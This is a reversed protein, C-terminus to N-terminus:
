IAMLLINGCGKEIGVGLEGDIGVKVKLEFM